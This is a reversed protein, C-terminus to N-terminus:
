GPTNITKQEPKHTRAHAHCRLCCRDKDKCLGSSVQSSVETFYDPKWQQWQGRDPKLDFNSPLGSYRKQQKQKEHILDGKKEPYIDCYKTKYYM